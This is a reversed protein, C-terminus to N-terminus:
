LESSYVKFKGIPVAAAQSALHLPTAGNKETLNIPSGHDILEQLVIPQGCALFETVINQIVAIITNGAAWHIPTYHNNDILTFNSNFDLLVKLAEVHGSMAALHVPARGHVDTESM